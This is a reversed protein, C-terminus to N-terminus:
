RACRMPSSRRPASSYTPPWRSLAHKFGLPMTWVKGTAKTYDAALGASSQGTLHSADPHNLSWWVEIAINKGRM